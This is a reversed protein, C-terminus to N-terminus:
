LFEKMQKVHKYPLKIEGLFDKDSGTGHSDSGGTKLLGLKEAIREAKERGFSMSKSNAEGILKYPYEVEVADLGMDALDSIIEEGEDKPLDRGPHAISTIGGNRHVRKIIREPKLKKSSVYCPREEGIFKEFAESINKVINKNVLVKALHPRVLSGSAVKRVDEMGIEEGGIRTNVKSVMERMREVRLEKIRDTLKQLKPDSSNLFYGLIEIKHGRVESKIESGNIVELGNIKKSRFDLEPHIVDHDTIAICRLKREKAVEITEEVSNTGDSATTHLHLDCKESSM